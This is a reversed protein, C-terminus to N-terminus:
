RDIPQSKSPVAYRADYQANVLYHFKVGRDTTYFAHRLGSPHLQSLDWIRQRELVSKAKGFMGIGM